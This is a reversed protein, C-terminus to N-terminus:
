DRGFGEMHKPNSSLDPPTNKASGILGLEMAVDYASKRKAAGNQPTGTPSQSDRNDAQALSKLTVSLPNADTLESTSQKEQLLKELIGRVSIIKATGLPVDVAKGSGPLLNCDLMERLFAELDPIPLHQVTRVLEHITAM